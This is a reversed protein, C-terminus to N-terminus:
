LLLSSGLPWILGIGLLARSLLWALGSVVVLLAAEM